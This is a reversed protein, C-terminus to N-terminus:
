DKPRRRRAPLSSLFGWILGMGLGGAHAMNAINGMAGTLCLFFWVVMMVVTQPQLDFGSGPDLRGRVWIYGFVGYNVGSFGNFFPSAVYYQALNSVVGFLVVMLGFRGTGVRAEVLSGLSILMMMNFLLHLPDTHVFAPTLLRWFEGAQVEPLGPIWRVGESVLLVKTILLESLIKEKYGTWALVTIALCLSLLVTTLAGIGYPMTARFVARRDFTRERVEAAEANTRRRLERARVSRGTYRADQPNALFVALMDKARPWEDESHIWVAWGEKDAEIQNEIGEVSLFDGFTTANTESPLHGIIRM